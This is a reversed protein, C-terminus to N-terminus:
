LGFRGRTLLKVTGNCVVVTAIVVVALVSGSPPDKYQQLEFLFTGITELDAGVLLVSMTLESFAPLFVLFWGAVLGPLLLPLQITRAVTLPSAGSVRAAEELSVDVQGLCDAMTRAPFALYKIVYAILLIWLTGVLFVPRTLLLILGIAVVTGPTAYPVSALLDPLARTRGRGRVKLVAILSGVLAAVTAAGAALGLSHLLCRGLDSSGTLLTRYRSLTWGDPAIDGAHRVISSFAVTSLPLVVVVFAVTAVLAFLPWRATGLSIALSRPSKGSVVAHRRRGIWAEAVWFLVLPVTVLSVPPLRAAAPLRVDVREPGNMTMFSLQPAIESVWVSPISKPTEPPVSQVVGPTPPAPLM